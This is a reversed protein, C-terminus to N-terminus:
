SCAADTSTAMKMLAKMSTATVGSAFAKGMRFGMKFTEWISSTPKSHFNASAM